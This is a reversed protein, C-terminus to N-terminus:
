SQQRIEELPPPPPPVPPYVCFWCNFLDHVPCYAEITNRISRYPCRDTYPEVATANIKEIGDGSAQHEVWREPWVHTMCAWISDDNHAYRVVEGDVFRVLVWQKLAVVASVPRLVHYSAEALKSTVPWAVAHSVSLLSATMRGFSTAQTEVTVSSPHVNWLAASLQRARVTAYGRAIHAETDLTDSRLQVGFHVLDLADIGIADWHLSRTVWDRVSTTKM